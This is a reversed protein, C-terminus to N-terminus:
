GIIGAISPRSKLTNAVSQEINEISIAEKIYNFANNFKDKDNYLVTLIVEGKKVKSGNKKNFEFGVAYDIEQGKINRGGGLAVLAEGIKESDINIIYGDKEAYIEKLYKVNDNLVPMDLSVGLWDMYVNYIHAGQAKIIEIFKNYAKKSTIAKLVELKNQEIDDGLGAMKLMQASIEFVVEKLEKNEYMTLTPEDALLFSIVEKIEISNGVSKGLPEEMSTLVCKTEIGAKKGIMVLMEALKKAEELTKMFAGSGYTVDLVLKDAGSAIKKSMISSAILPISSVTATVDRLAYLKKDAAAINESQTILCAGVNNVQMLAEEISKDLTYGKIGEVKDATGGTFGLGRGSMKFVKGGLCSVIPLVILTIKDGVGGTSHKDVIINGGEKLSSLDIIDSSYAMAMTLNYIEMDTMGNIYIAMILASAQYDQANGNVYEKIFFEIEEKTLEKNDRKKEIIDYIRM